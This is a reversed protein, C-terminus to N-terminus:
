RRREAIDLCKKQHIRRKIQDSLAEKFFRPAGRISLIQNVTMNRVIDLMEEHSEKSESIKQKREDATQRSM